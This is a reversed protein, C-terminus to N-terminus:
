AKRRRALALGALALGVLAVSGPEPVVTPTGPSTGLFLQEFGNDIAVGNCSGWATDSICGMRLDLHMTYNTMDAGGAFLTSLYQNLLPVSAVYAVNNAGLNLPDGNPTLGSRVFDTSALGTTPEVALPGPNYNVAQTPDNFTGGFGFAGGENSLYLYQGYLANSSDTIWLKAWIALTQDGGTENNNFFFLPNDGALFTKLSLLSADWTTTLNNNITGSSTPSSMIATTTYATAGAPANYPDDFGATNTTVEVGNAGTYIVVLDQIQGPSSDISQGYLTPAYSNVNGYTFYPLGTLDFTAGFAAGGSGLAALMAISLFKSRM